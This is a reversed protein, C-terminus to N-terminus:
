QTRLVNVFVSSYGEREFNPVAFISSDTMLFYHSSDNVAYGVLNRGSRRAIRPPIGGTNTFVYDYRDGNQYYLSFSFSGESIGNEFYGNGYFNPSRTSLNTYVVTDIRGNGNPRDDRWEGSYVVYREQNNTYYDGYGNRKQDTMQGIYVYGDPYVAVYQDGSQQLILPEQLKAVLDLFDPTLLVEKALQGDNARILTGLRELLGEYEKKVEYRVELRETERTLTSTEIEAKQLVELAKKLDGMQEYAGSLKLYSDEEESDYIILDKYYKVAQDYKAKRFAQDGLDTLQSVIQRNLDRIQAETEDDREQLTMDEAVALGKKLVNISRGMDKQATFVDSLGRYAAMQKPEIMLAKSYALMAKDYEFEVLYRDGLKLQRNVRYDAAAGCGTMLLLSLAMIILGTRKM